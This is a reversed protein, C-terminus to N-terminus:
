WAFEGFFAPPWLTPDPVQHSRALQFVDLNTPGEIKRVICDCFEDLPVHDCRVLAGGSIILSQRREYVM